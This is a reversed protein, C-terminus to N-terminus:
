KVSSWTKLINQWCIQMSSSMILKIAWHKNILSMYLLIHLLFGKEWIGIIDCAALRIQFPCEQPNTRFSRCLQALHTPAWCPPWPHGPALMQGFCGTHGRSDLRAPPFSEWRTRTDLTTHFPAASFPIRREWQELKSTSEWPPSLLPSFWVVVSSTWFFWGNDQGRTPIVNTDGAHPGSHPPPVCLPAPNTHDAIVKMRKAGSSPGPPLGDGATVLIKSKALQQVIATKRQETAIIRGWAGQSMLPNRFHASLIRYNSLCARLM